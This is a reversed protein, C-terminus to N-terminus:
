SVIHYDLIKGTKWMISISKVPDKEQQYQNYLPAIEGIIYMNNMSM